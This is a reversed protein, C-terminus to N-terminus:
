DNTYHCFEVYYIGNMQILNNDVYQAKFLFTLIICFAIEFANEQGSNQANENLNGWLNNELTQNVIHRCQNPQLM